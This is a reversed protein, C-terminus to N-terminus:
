LQSPHFSEFRRIAPDFGEMPGLFILLKSVLKSIRNGEVGRPEGDSDRPSDIPATVLAWSIWHPALLARMMGIGRVYGATVADASFSCRNGAGKQVGDNSGPLSLVLRVTYAKTV